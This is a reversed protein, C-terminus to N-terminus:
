IVRSTAVDSQAVKEIIATVLQLDMLEFYVSNKQDKLRFHWRLM